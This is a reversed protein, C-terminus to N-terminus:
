RPWVNAWRLLQQARTTRAAQSSPCDIMASRSTDTPWEVGDYIAFALCPCNVSLVWHRSSDESSAPLNDGLPTRRAALTFVVRPHSEPQRSITRGGAIHKRRRQYRHLPRVKLRRIRWVWQDLRQRSWCTAPRHRATSRGSRKWDTQRHSLNVDSWLLRRPWCVCNLRRVICSPLSLTSGLLGIYHHVMPLTFM